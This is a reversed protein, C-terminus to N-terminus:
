HPAEYVDAPLPHSLQTQLTFRREPPLGENLRRFGERPTLDRPLEEPEEPEEELAEYFYTEVDELPLRDHIFVLRDRLREWQPVTLGSEEMFRERLAEELGELARQRQQERLAAVVEDTVDDGMAEAMARIEEESVGGRSNRWDMEDAYAKEFAPVFSEPITPLLEGAPREALLRRYLAEAGLEPARVKGHGPRQDLEGGRTATTFTLSTGDAYRAVYDMWVGAPVLEYVIAHVRDRENAFARLRLNPIEETEFDGADVFGLASLPDALRAVADPDSWELHDRRVLHIRAPIPTGAAGGLEEMAKALRGRFFRWAVILAVILLVIVLFIAGLIQLLLGM